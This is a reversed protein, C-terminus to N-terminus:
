FWHIVFITQHIVTSNSYIMTEMTM